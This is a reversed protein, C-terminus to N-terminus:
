AIQKKRITWLNDDNKKIQFNVLDEKTKRLFFDIIDFLEDESKIKSKIKPFNLLLKMLMYKEPDQASHQLIFDDKSYNKDSYYYNIQQGIGFPDIVEKQQSQTIKATNSDSQLLQQQTEQPEYKSDVDQSLVKIAAKRAQSQITAVNIQLEQIESYNIQLTENKNTKIRLKKESQSNEEVKGSILNSVSPEFKVDDLYTQKFLIEDNKEILTPDDNLTQVPLKIYETQKKTTQPTSTQQAVKEKNQNESTQQQKQQIPNQKQNPKTQQSTQLGTPKQANKAFTKKWEQQKSKLEEEPSLINIQIKNAPQSKKIPVDESSSESESVIQRIIPNIQKENQQSLNDQIQNPKAILNSKIQQVKSNQNQIIPQKIQVQKINEESTSEQIQKTQKQKLKTDKQIMKTSSENVEIVQIPQNNIVLNEVLQDNLARFGEIFIQPNQLCCTKSLYKCLDEITQNPKSFLLINDTSNNQYQIILKLRM